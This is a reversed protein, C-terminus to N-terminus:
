QSTNKSGSKQVQQPSTSAALLKDAKNIKIDHEKICREARDEYQEIDNKSEGVLQLKTKNSVTAFENPDFAVVSAM